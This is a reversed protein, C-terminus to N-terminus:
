NQSLSNLNITLTSGDSHRIEIGTYPNSCDVDITPIDEGPTTVTIQTVFVVGTGYNKFELQHIPVITNQKPSVFGRVPEEQGYYHRVDTTACLQRLEVQVGKNGVGFSAGDNDFKLDHAGPSLNFIQQISHETDSIAEDILLITSPRVLIIGRSLTVSDYMTHSGQVFDFAEDFFYSTVNAKGIGEKTIPYSKGDIALTNHAQTSTVYQRWKSDYAYAYIGSDVLIDEGQSYLVFALDDAHKHYTSHFGSQFMLYTTDSFENGSKWEDRLIAVGADPYVVSNQPPKVGDLGDSLSYIVWPHGYTQTVLDGSTDGLQPLRRNPMVMYAVYQEMKEITRDGAEFLSVGKTKLYNEAQSVLSLFFLHYAPSHELHIGEISLDGRIRESIREIGATKWLESDQFQPFTLAIQTLSMSAMMGHNYPHYNKEELLWTAHQNLMISIKEFLSDPLNVNKLSAYARLFHTLNNVRWAVAADNWAYNPPEQNNYHFDFWSEVIEAAKEVYRADGSVEAANALYGVVELSQFYLCWTNTKNGVAWDIEGEYRYPELGRSVYMNNELAQNAYFLKPDTGPSVRTMIGTYDVSRFWAGTNLDTATPKGCAIISSAM